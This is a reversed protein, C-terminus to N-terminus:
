LAAAGTLAAILLFIAWAWHRRGGPACALGTVLFTAAISAIVARGGAAEGYRTLALLVAALGFWAVTTIHWAFRLVSRALGSQALLGSRTEAATLPGILKVEGLWSHAIGVALILLAAAGLLLTDM